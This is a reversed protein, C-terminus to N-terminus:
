FTPVPESVNVAEFKALLSATRTIMVEDAAHAPDDEVDFTIVMTTLLGGLAALAPDSWYTVVEVAVSAAVGAADPVPCHVVDPLAIMLVDDDAEVV